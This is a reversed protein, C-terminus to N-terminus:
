PPSAVTVLEVTVPLNRCCVFYIHHNNAVIMVVIVNLEGLM